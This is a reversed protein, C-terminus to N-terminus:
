PNEPNIKENLSDLVRGSKMLRTYCARVRPFLDEDSMLIDGNGQAQSGGDVTEKMEKLLDGMAAEPGALGGDAGPPKDVSPPASALSPPGGGGLNGGNMGQM